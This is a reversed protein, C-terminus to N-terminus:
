HILLKLINNVFFNAPSTFYTTAEMMLGQLFEDKEPYYVPENTFQQQAEKVVADYFVTFASDSRQM